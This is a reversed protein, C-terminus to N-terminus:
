TIPMLGLTDRQSTQGTETLLVIEVQIRQAVLDPGRRHPRHEDGGFLFVLGRAPLRAGKRSGDHRGNLGGRKSRTAGAVRAFFPALTVEM